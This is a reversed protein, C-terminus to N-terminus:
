TAEKLCKVAANLFYSFDGVNHVDQPEEMFGRHLRRSGRSYWVRRAEWGQKEQALLM